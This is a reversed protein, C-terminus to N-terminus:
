VTGDRVDGNSLTVPKFMDPHAEENPFALRYKDSPWFVPGVETDVNAASQSAYAQERVAGTCKPAKGGNMACTEDYPIVVALLHEAHREASM